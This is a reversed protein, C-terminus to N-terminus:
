HGGKNSTNHCAPTIDCRRTIDKDRVPTVDERDGEQRSSDGGGGEM